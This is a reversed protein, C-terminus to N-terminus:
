KILTGKGADTFIAQLVNEPSTITVSEVGQKLAKIAGQVKDVQSWHIAGTGSTLMAEADEVGLEGIVQEEKDLVGGAEICIVLKSVGLKAAIASAATDPKVDIPQFIKHGDPPHCWNWVEAEPKYDEGKPLLKGISSVIPISQEQIVTLIPATDVHLEDVSHLLEPNILTGTLVGWNPSIAQAIDPGGSSHPSAADNVKKKYGYSASHAGSVLNSAFGPDIYNLKYHKLAEVVIYQQNLGHVITPYLGVEHLALMHGASLAVGGYETPEAHIVAFQSPNEISKFQEYNELVEHLPVQDGVAELLNKM